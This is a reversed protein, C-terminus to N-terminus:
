EAEEDDSAAPEPRSQSLRTRRVSDILDRMEQHM